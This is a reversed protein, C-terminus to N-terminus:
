ILAKENNELLHMKNLANSAHSIQGPKSLPESREMETLKGHMRSFVTGGQFVCVHVTRNTDVLGLTNVQHNM